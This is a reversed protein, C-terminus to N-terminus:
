EEFTDWLKIEANRSRDKSAELFERAIKAKKIQLGKAVLQAVFKSIQGRPVYQRLERVLNVPLTLTIPINRMDRM